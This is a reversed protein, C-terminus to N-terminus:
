KKAKKARKRATKPAAPAAAAPAKAKGADQAHYTTARKQGKTQVKGSGRLRALADAIATKEGGIRATIQESRLGPNQRIFSLVRGVTRAIQNSSGRAGKGTSEAEQVAKKKGPARAAKSGKASRAKEGLGQELFRRYAAVTEEVISTVHGSIIAQLEDRLTAM